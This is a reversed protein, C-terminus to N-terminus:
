IKKQAHTADCNQFDLNPNTTMKVNKHDNKEVCWVRKSCIVVTIKPTTVEFKEIM